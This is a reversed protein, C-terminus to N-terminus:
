KINLDGRKFVAFWLERDKRTKWVCPPPFLYRKQKQNQFKFFFRDGKRDFLMLVVLGLSVFCSLCVIVHIKFFDFFCFNLIKFFLAHPCKRCNQDSILITNGM